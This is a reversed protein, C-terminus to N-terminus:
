IGLRRRVQEMHNRGVPIRSNGPADMVIVMRGDERLLGTAHSLSV